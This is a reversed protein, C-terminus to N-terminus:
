NTDKLRSLHMGAKRLNTPTKFYAEAEASRSTNLVAIDALHQAILDDPFSPPYQYSSRTIENCFM